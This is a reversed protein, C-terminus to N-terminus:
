KAAIDFPNEFSMGDNSYSKGPAEEAVEEAAESKEETEETIEDALGRKLVEDILADDSATSLDVAEPKESSEEESDMFDMEEEAPASEPM